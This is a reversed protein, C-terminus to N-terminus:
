PGSTKCRKYDAEITQVEAMAPLERKHLVTSCDESAGDQPVPTGGARGMQQEKVLQALRDRDRKLEAIQTQADLLSRKLSNVLNLNAASSDVNSTSSNPPSVGGGQADKPNKAKNKIDTRKTQGQLAVPKVFRFYEQESRRKTKVAGPDADALYLHELLQRRFNVFTNCNTLKRPGLRLSQWYDPDNVRQRAAFIIKEDIIQFSFAEPNGTAMTRLKDEFSPRASYRKRPTSTTTPSSKKESAAATSLLSLAVATENDRLHDMTREIPPSSARDFRRFFKKKFKFRRRLILFTFV